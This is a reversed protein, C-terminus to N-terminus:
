TLASALHPPLTVIVYDSVYETYQTQVLSSGDNEEKISQAREYLIIQTNKLKGALTEILQSLTGSM